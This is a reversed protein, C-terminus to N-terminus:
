LAFCGQLVPHSRVLSAPENFTLALRTDGGKVKKGAHKDAISRYTVLLAEALSLEPRQRTIPNEFTLARANKLDNVICLENACVFSEISIRVESDSVYKLCSLM